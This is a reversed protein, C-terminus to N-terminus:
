RSSPRAHNLNAPHPRLDADFDGADIDPRQVIRAKSRDILGPEVVIDHHHAVLFQRDVVEQAVAPAEANNHRM